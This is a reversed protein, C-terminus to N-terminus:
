RKELKIGIDAVGPLLERRMIHNVSFDACDGSDLQVRRWERDYQYLSIGHGAVDGKEDTLRCEITDSVVREPHHWHQRVVLWLSQYPYPTSASTRVGISFAYTGAERITDIRFKLTDGPEWGELPTACYDYAAPKDQCATGLLLLLLCLLIKPM